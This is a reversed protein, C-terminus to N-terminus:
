DDSRDQDSVPDRPSQLTGEPTSAARDILEGLRELQEAAVTFERKGLAELWANFASNLQKGLVPVTMGHLADSELGTRRDEFLGRLAADFSEAYSMNDGHMVVVLRLEPYAATEAQLYIPEVYLITDDLPIALVMSGTLLPLFVRDDARQEFERGPNQEHMLLAVVGAGCGAMRSTIALGFLRDYFPLSFLFFGTDMGFLPDVSRTDVRNIFVLLESWGHAGWWGGGLAAIGLATYRISRDQVSWIIVAALAAALVAGALLAEAHTGLFLWFRRELGLAEFWLLEGWLSLLGFFGATLVLIAAGTAIRRCDGRENGRNILWVGAAVLLALILAYM